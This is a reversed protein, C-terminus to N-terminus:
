SFLAAGAACDSKGLLRVRRCGEAYRPFCPDVWGREAMQAVTAQADIADLSKVLVLEEAALLGALWAALSDSTMEWSQPIAPEAVVMDHPMWVPVRGQSLALRMAEMGAAPVLGPQMAVLHRGYCEMARLALRHAMADDFGERLQADRVEDAWRGGGPVLVTSGGGAAVCARLWCPLEESGALSGGLKIVRM